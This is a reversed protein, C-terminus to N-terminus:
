RADSCPCGCSTRIRRVLKNRVQVTLQLMMRRAALRDHGHARRRHRRGHRQRRHQGRRRDNVSDSGAKSRTSSAAAGAGARARWGVLAGAEPHRVLASTCFDSRHGHTIERAGAGASGHRSHRRDGGHEGSLRARRRGHGGDGRARRREADLRLGGHRRRSAVARLAKPVATQDEVVDAVKVGVAGVDWRPTSRSSPSPALVVDRRRYPQGDPGRTSEANAMNSVAVEMRARQADLAPAARDGTRFLPM